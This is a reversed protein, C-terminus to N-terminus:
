SVRRRPARRPSAYARRLHTVFAVNLGVLLAVSASLLAGWAAPSHAPLEPPQFAYAPTMMTGASTGEWVAKVAPAGAHPAAQAVADPAASLPLRGAAAPQTAAGSVLTAVVVLAALGVNVRVTTVKKMTM